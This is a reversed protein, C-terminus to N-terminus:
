ATSRLRELAPLVSSRGRFSRQRKLHDISRQRAQRERELVCCAILCCAIHHLPAREARAQGGTLRRQAQCVRIVEASQSRFRYRRRVEATPLRLRNTADYKAGYRVVWVNLGGSLRGRDAGYPHRRCARVAQGHCRRNQKLRCGVYWGSDRLRKLRAKSPDWADLRVSEPRCRLRHRADSLWELALVAPSPGDQQWLRRGLPVRLTGPTWVRLVLAFGYVPQREQRSFVWALGAITTAFPQPIVPDARMRDGREWVWLTRCALDLRTHGSGAGQRRRTLRDPSGPQLAEAVAMCSASTRDYLLATLDLWRLEPM